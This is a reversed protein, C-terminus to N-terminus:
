PDFLDQHQQQELQNNFLDIERNAEEVYEAIFQDMQPHFNNKEGFFSVYQQGNYFFGPPLPDLHRKVHITRIEQPSLSTHTKKVKRVEKQKVCIRLWDKLAEQTLGVGHFLLFCGSPEQDGQHSDGLPQQTIRLNGSVTNYSVEMMRESDSFLVKGSVNYVNGRFPNPRLASKFALPCLSVPLINLPLFYVHNLMTSYVIYIWGPYLLYRARMMQAESFSSESLIMKVDENRTVAGREALIFVANPNASRILQQVTQLLPNKQEAALGTFVVTSVIGQSCQEVLKPFVFRHEMYSSLPDVCATVAGITFCAQVVADPHSLVAQVVDLIDTCGPTLLLLRPKGGHARQTELFCSLYRQLHSTSFCDSCDPGPRYVVWRCVCPFCGCRPVGCRPVGCNPVGCNPVGYNPVGCNPVGCNPVGCNPVGCNPVGCNPVGCNPVGGNPVGCNPVGCNPVCCNPVGCNPVGYNPVGCNPVGCNPVGCNPVGCNPVGCHPVGGNPVGCNPVGCNPVGCNPVGCNPVGGNPVGGNPVGGNPVGCNPVGCNPVGYNPVGCNPVGCNPVGYNPVGCNPVGYNPVGCNPVGYNPVGCNPVGCNPVGCNPVGGNPVGGNPVGCNPVGCNPVGYNPVGCNPVGCNPVGYNPVGCNPVGYNPVGCNPVGCNPVGCNPVGYNPVGCHPVGCHPVGCHPVGCNPVGYNPVGCHPVGYHPVGCHPVGCHPVGCDSVYGLHDDQIPEQGVSSLAFHQLFRHTSPETVSMNTSPETVSQGTLLLNKSQSVQSYFARHSQSRPQLSFVLCHDDSHLPFPLHSLLAAEYQVFLAAVVSSSDLDYLKIRSILSWKTSLSKIGPHISLSSLFPSLISPLLSSLLSSQPSSLHSSLLSSSLPYCVLWCVYRPLATTLITYCSDSSVSGDKQQINISSVLFSESFVVSGLDGKGWQLDPIDYVSMSAQSVCGGSYLIVRLGQGRVGSSTQSTTCQCPRKLSYSTPSIVIVKTASTTNSYCKIGALVSQVATHKGLYPIHTTGFFYTRSCALSGKPAVCQLVMHKAPTGQPGTNRVQHGDSPFNFSYSHLNEMSSHSGFLVLPQRRRSSDAINSSILGHSFYSRFAEGAQAESLELISLHSEIDFSSFFSSWQKEFLVLDETLLNDLSVPDLRTYTQWLKESIDMLKYKMTFFSGGGIGELAFAQIIPWKEIMFMDFTQIHGQTSYPVGIRSCDQVMSVFSSIKFEEAAEEDEYETQNMCHISLNRWHSVYPLLYSYNIPNCYLHVSEAKILVIVDDLVEEPFDELIHELNLQNKRYLGYFLYNALESCGENYRSDIGLSCLIGDPSAEGEWLLSQVHRLRSCSFFVFVIYRLYLLHWQHWNTLICIFMWWIFWVIPYFGTGKSCCNSLLSDTRRRSLPFTM